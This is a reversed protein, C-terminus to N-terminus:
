SRQTFMVLDILLLWTSKDVVLRMEVLPLMISCVMVHDMSTCMCIVKISKQTKWEQHEQCILHAPWHKGLLTLKCGILTTRQIMLLETSWRWKHSLTSQERKSHFSIRAWRILLTFKSGGTDMKVLPNAKQSSWCVETSIQDWITWIHHCLTCEAELTVIIHSIYRNVRKLRNLLRCEWYGSM